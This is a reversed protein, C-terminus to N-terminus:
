LGSIYGGSVNSFDRQRRFGYATQSERVPRVSAFDYRLGTQISWNGHNIQQYSYIALGFENTEPTFTLGGAAFNSQEAQLGLISRNIIGFKDLYFRGNFTNTFLSYDSGVLDFKGTRSNMELEEHFYHSFTYEILM